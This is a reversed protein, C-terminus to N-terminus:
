RVYHRMLIRTAEEAALDGEEAWWSLKRETQHLNSPDALLYAVLSSVGIRRLSFFTAADRPTRRYTRARRLMIGCSFFRWARPIFARREPVGDPRRARNKLIDADLTAVARADARAAAHRRPSM